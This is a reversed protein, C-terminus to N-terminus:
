YKTLFKLALPELGSNILNQEWPSCSRENQGESREEQGRGLWDRAQPEFDCKSRDAISMLRDRAASQTM